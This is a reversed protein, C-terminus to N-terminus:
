VLGTIGMASAERTSRDPAATTTRLDARRNSSSLMAALLNRTTAETDLSQGPEAPVVRVINGAGVRFGADRPPHEVRKRLNAFFHTAVPGALKLETSGGRPLALLRAIKVRTLHWGGAGYSLDVPASLATEAKVKAGALDLTALHPRDAKLPLAVPDRALGTLSRVLVREAASRDLLTGAHGPVVEHELGRLR